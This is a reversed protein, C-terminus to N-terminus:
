ERENAIVPSKARSNTPTLCESNGNSGSRSSVSSPLSDTVRQEDRAADDLPRVHEYMSLPRTSLAREVELTQGSSPRHHVDSSYEMKILKMGEESPADLDASRRKSDVLIKWQDNDNFHTCRGKQKRCKDCAGRKRTNKYANREEVTMKRKTKPRMSRGDHASWVFQQAATPSAHAQSQESDATAQSAKRIREALKPSITSEILSSPTGDSASLIETGESLVEAHLRAATPTSGQTPHKINSPSNPDIISSGSQMRSLEANLFDITARHKRERHTKCDPYAARLKESLDDSDVPYKFVIGAWPPLEDSTLQQRLIFDMDFQKLVM